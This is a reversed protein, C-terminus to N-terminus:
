CCSVIAILTGISVSKDTLWTSTGISGTTVFSSYSNCCQAYNAAIAVKGNATSNFNYYIEINRWSSSPIDVSDSGPPWYGNASVTYIPDSVTETEIRTSIDNVSLSVPNPNYVSYTAGIIFTRESMDASGSVIQMSIANSVYPTRPIFFFLILFCCCCALCATWALTTWRRRKGTARESKDLLPVDIATVQEASVVTPESIGM